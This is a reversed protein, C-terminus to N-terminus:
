HGSREYRVLFQGRNERWSAVQWGEMGPEYIIDELCDFLCCSCSAHGTLALVFSDTNVEVIDYRAEVGHSRNYREVARKLRALFPLVRGLEEERTTPVLGLPELALEEAHFRFAYAFLDLGSRAVEKSFAPDTRYNLALLEAEAMVLFLLGGRGHAKLLRVHKLGRATPADPFYAVQGRLLTCGKVELLYSNLRFDVRAGPLRIEREVLKFASLFPISPLVLEALDNHMRSDILVWSDSERARAALLRLRFKGGEKPMVLVENGPFLLERLRGPDAVHAKEVSGDSLEVIATFRNPRSLFRARLAKMAL